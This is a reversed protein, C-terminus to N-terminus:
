EYEINVSGELPLTVVNDVVTKYDHYIAGEVNESKFKGPYTVYLLIYSNAMNAINDPLTGSVTFETIDNAKINSIADGTTATLKARVIHNHCFDDDANKQPYIIGNELIFASIKYEMVDKVALRIDISINNGDMQSVASIGTLAPYETISNAILGTIIRCTEESDYNPLECINDFIGVPYVHGTNYYNELLECYEGWALGGESSEPHIAMPVLRDGTENIAMDFADNMRYCFSCWTATFKIGLNRKYFPYSYDVQNLGLQKLIITNEEMSENTLIIKGERAETGNNESIRFVLCHEMYESETKGDILTHGKVSEDSFEVWDPMSKLELSETGCYLIELIRNESSTVYEKKEIMSGKAANQIIYFQINKKEGRDTYELNIIGEKEKLDTNDQEATLRIIKKGSGSTESISFWDYQSTINWKSEVSIGMEAQSGKESELIVTRGLDYSTNDPVTTGKDCASIMLIMLFYIHLRARSM